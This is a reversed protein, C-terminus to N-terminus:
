SQVENYELIASWFVKFSSCFQIEHMIQRHDNNEDFLNTHTQMKFSKKQFVLTGDEQKRHKRNARHKSNSTM